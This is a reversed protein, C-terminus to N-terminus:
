RDDHTTKTTARDFADEVAHWRPHADVVNGGSPADIGGWRQLMSVVDESGEGCDM